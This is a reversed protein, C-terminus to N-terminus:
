FKFGVHVGIAFIPTGNTYYNYGIRWGAVGSRLFNFDNEMFGNFGIDSTRIHAVSGDVTGEEADSNIESRHRAAGGVGLRLNITEKQILDVSTELGGMYFTNKISYIEKGKDYRSATLLGLNLGVAVREGLYHSFKNHFMLGQSDFESLWVFSIGSVFTNPDKSTARKYGDAYGNFSALVFFCLLAFSVVISQRM